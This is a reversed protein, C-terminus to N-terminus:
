WLNWNGSFTDPNISTIRNGSIDLHFLRSNNRFVSPHIETISYRDLRLEWLDRNNCFMDLNLASIKNYSLDLQHINGLPHLAIRAINVKSNHLDLTELATINFKLFIDRNLVGSVNGSVTLEQIGPDFTGRTLNTGVSFVDRCIAEKVSSCQCVSSCLREQSTLLVTTLFVSVTAVRGMTVSEAEM